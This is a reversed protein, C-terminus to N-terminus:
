FLVFENDIDMPCNMEEIDTMKMTKLKKIKTRNMKLYASFNYINISIHTFSQSQKRKKNSMHIQPKKRGLGNVSLRNM